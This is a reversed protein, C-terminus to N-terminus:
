NGDRKARLEKITALQEQIILAGLAERKERQDLRGELYTLTADWRQFFIFFIAGFMVFCLAFAGVAANRWFLVREEIKKWEEALKQGAHEHAQNTETQDLKTEKM